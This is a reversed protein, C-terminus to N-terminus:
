GFTGGTIGENPYYVDGYDVNVDTAKDSVYSKSKFKFNPRADAAEVTSIEGLGNPLIIILMAVTLLIALSRKCITKM